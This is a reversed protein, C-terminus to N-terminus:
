GDQAVGAKGLNEALYDSIEYLDDEPATMGKAIMRSIVGNWEDQTHRQTAFMGVSHCQGCVRQTMERGAGDPLASPAAVATPPAEQPPTRTMAGLGGALVVGGILCVITGKM